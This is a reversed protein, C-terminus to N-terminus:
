EFFQRTSNSINRYAHLDIDNELIHDLFAKPSFDSECYVLFTNGSISHRKIKDHVLADVVKKHNAMVVIEYVNQGQKQQMDSVSGKYVCEGKRLFIIQDSVEEIKYLHQSSVIISLHYDVSQQFTKLDNLFNTQAKIDLNALPEDLILLKPKGALVKALEFRMKYGGSLETWDLLRYDWLGLDKILKDIYDINENGKIGNIAGNYHLNEYVSGSWTILDQSIYGINSKIDDMSSNSAFHYKIDGSSPHLLGALMTLLTTKGNGNEGVLGTVQGAKLDLSIPQLTFGNRGYTKGLDVASLVTNTM